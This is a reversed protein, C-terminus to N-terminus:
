ARWILVRVIYILFINKMILTVSREKTLRVIEQEKDGASGSKGRGKVGGGEQRLRISDELTNIQQSLRVVDRAASHSSRIKEAELSDREAMLAEREAIVRERAALEQHNLTILNMLTACSILNIALLTHQVTSRSIEGNFFKRRHGKGVFILCM